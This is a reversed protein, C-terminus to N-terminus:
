FTIKAAATITGLGALIDAVNYTLSMTAGNVLTTSEAVVKVALTGASAYTTNLTAKYDAATYVVDAGANWAGTGVVYGGRATVALEKSAALKASVGLDQANILDKGTVTLTVQDLALAVKASLLNNIAPGANTNTAFYVDVTAPDFKSQVAVDAKLTGASYAADGALSASYGEGAYTVKASASAANAVSSLLGAAAFKAKMGDAVEVEPTLVTLYADYVAGIGDLGVSFTYTDLGVTIGKTEQTVYSAPKMTAYVDALVDITSVAWDAAAATGLINVWWGDGIIKASTVKATVDFEGIVPDADSYVTTSDFTLKLSATLEARIDGTGKKEGAAEFFVVDADVATANTFGYANTDLNYGLTTTASGTFGAFVVSGVLVLVLLVASIKKM